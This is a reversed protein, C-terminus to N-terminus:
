YNRALDRNSQCAVKQKAIQELNNYNRHYIIHAKCIKKARFKNLKSVVALLTMPFSSYILAVSIVM